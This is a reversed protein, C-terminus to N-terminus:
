QLAISCFFFAEKQIKIVIVNQLFLAYKQTNLHIQILDKSM